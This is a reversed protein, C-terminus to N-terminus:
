TGGPLKLWSGFDSSYKLLTRKASKHVTSVKVRVSKHASTSMNSAANTRFIRLMQVNSFKNRPLSNSVELLYFIKINPTPINM